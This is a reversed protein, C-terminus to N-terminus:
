SDSTETRNSALWKEITQSLQKRSLPKILHDDMGADICKKRDGEIASATLAVIPGDYKLEDRLKRTADYGDLVPMQCDMLVIDPRQPSKEAEGNAGGGKLATTMYEVAVAGNEAFDVNHYGLKELHGVVVKKNILNDEVLLIHIEDNPQSLRAQDDKDSGDSTKRSGALINRSSDLPIDLDLTITARTGQGKVSELRVDGNMAQALKRAISLGLGSGGYVRTTSQDAQVFPKFLRGLTEDDIGIGTDEVVALVKAVGHQQEISATLKVYGTSTFKIANTIMNQLIQRIRGPDGLLTLPGVPSELHFSLGKKVALVENTNCMDHLFRPLDFAIRELLIADAQAKSFDLINNVIALLSQASSQFTQVYDSQKSTLDTEILLETMGLLGAIPTRLEHSVNALFQDKMREAEQMSKLQHIAKKNSVESTLDMTLGLVGRRPERGDGMLDEEDTESVAFTRLYKDGIQHDTVSSDLERNVIKELEALMHDAGNTDASNAFMEHIGLGEYDTSGYITGQKNGLKLTDEPNTIRLDEDLTFMTVPMNNVLKYLRETARQALKQRMSLDHIDTTIAYWRLMNDDDGLDRVPVVRDSFYRYTSGERHRVRIKCDSVHQYKISSAVASELKPLDDPHICDKYHGQCLKMRSLGAFSEWTDSFYDITGDPLFTRVMVPRVGATTWYMRNLTDRREIYNAWEQPERAQIIVGLPDDKFPNNLLTCTSDVISRAGTNPDELGYKLSIIGKRSKLTTPGAADSLAKRNNFNEDWVNLYRESPEANTDMARALEGLSGRGHENVEFTGSAYMLSTAYPVDRWSPDALSHFLEHEEDPSLKVNKWSRPPTSSIGTLSFFTRTGIHCTTLTWQLRSTPGPELCMSTPKSRTNTRQPRDHHTSSAAVQHRPPLQDDPVSGILEQISLDLDQKSKLHVDVFDTDFISRDLLAPETANSSINVHVSSIQVLDRAAANCYAIRLDTTLYICPVPLHELLDTTNVSCHEGLQEGRRTSM